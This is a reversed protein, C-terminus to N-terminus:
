ENIVIEFLFKPDRELLFRIAYEYINIEKFNLINQTTFDVSDDMSPQIGKTSIFLADIGLIKINHQKCTKVFEIAVDKSYLYIGHRLVGKDQFLDKIKM